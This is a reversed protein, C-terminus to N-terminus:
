KGNKLAWSIFCSQSKKNMEEWIVKMTTVSEFDIEEPAKQTPEPTDNEVVELPESVVKAAEKIDKATMPKGKVEAAAQAQEIVAVRKAPEINVLERAQGETTIKPGIPGLNKTVDASEILRNAYRREFGWKSKCYEEFTKFERRYYKADRIEALAMGVDVFGQKGKSITAELKELRKSEEGTLLQLM